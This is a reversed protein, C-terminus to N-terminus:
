PTKQDTAERQMAAECDAVWKESPEKWSSDRKGLEHCKKLAALAEYAEPTLRGATSLTEDIDTLVGRINALVARPCDSLPKM